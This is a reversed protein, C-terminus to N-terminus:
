QGAKVADPATAALVLGRGLAAGSTHGVRLLAALPRDLDGTALGRVVASVQPLCRGAIAHLLLAASLATTRNVGARVDGPLEGPDRGFARCGLLYGAVIDDGSPTLGPGRGLNSKINLSEPVDLDIRKAAEDLAALRGPAPSVRPVMAAPWARLVTAVTGPWSVAGDGVRVPGTAPLSATVVACPLRLAHPRVLAVVGRACRLYVASDCRGLVEAEAAPAFLVARVASSCSAAVRM